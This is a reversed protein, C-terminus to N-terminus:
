CAYVALTAPKSVLNRDLGNVKHIRELVKTVCVVDLLTIRYTYVICAKLYQAGSVLFGSIPQKSVRPCSTGKSREGAFFTPRSLSVEHFALNSGRSARALLKAPCKHQWRLPM